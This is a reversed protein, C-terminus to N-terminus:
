KECRKLPFDSTANPQDDHSLVLRQDAGEGGVLSLRTRQEWTDGEGEMALAVIVDEGDVTVATVTGISEYFLIESDSVQMQMDSIEPCTDKYSDWTGHLRAPIRNALTEQLTDLPVAGDGIGSDPEVPVPAEVPSPAPEPAPDETAGNCASVALALALPLALPLAIAFDTRM